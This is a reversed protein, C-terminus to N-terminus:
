EHFIRLFSFHCIGPSGIAARYLQHWPGTGPRARRNLFVARHLTGRNGFFFCKKHFTGLNQGNTRTLFFCTLSSSYPVSTSHCQCPFVSTSPFFDAWAMKGIVVRVGGRRPDFESIRPVLGEVLPRPCPLAKLVLSWAFKIWNTGCLVRVKRM